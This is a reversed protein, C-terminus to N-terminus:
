KFKSVVKGDEYIPTSDGEIDKPNVAKTKQTEQQQKKQSEFNKIAQLRRQLSFQRLDEEEELLEPFLKQMAYIKGELVSIDCILSEILESERGETVSNSNLIKQL